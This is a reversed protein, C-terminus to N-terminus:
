RGKSPGALEAMREVFLKFHSNEEADLKIQPNNKIASIVAKVAASSAIKGSVEAIHGGEVKNRILSAEGGMRLPPEAMGRTELIRGVGVSTASVSTINDKDTIRFSQGGNVITVVKHAVRISVIGDETHVRAMVGKDHDQSFLVVNAEKQRQDGGQVFCRDRVVIKFCETESRTDYFEEVEDVGFM